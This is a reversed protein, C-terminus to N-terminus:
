NSGEARTRTNRKVALAYAESLLERVKAFTGESPNLVCVWHMRGYVPHPMIRDSATFDHDAEMTDPGLLGEFTEKSVGVNLRFVGSRDLDSFQDYADTTVLTAFPLKRDDAFFFFSNAEASVVKAEAFTTTIYHSVDKDTMDGQGQPHESIM